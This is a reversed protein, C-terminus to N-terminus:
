AALFRFFIPGYMALIFIYIYTHTHHCYMHSTFCHRHRCIFILLQYCDLLFPFSVLSLSLSFFTSSLSDLRWCIKIELNRHTHITSLYAYCLIIDNGMSNIANGNADFFMTLIRQACVNVSKRVRVWVHIVCHRVVCGHDILWHFTKREVWRKRRAARSSIENQCLKSNKKIVVYWFLPLWVVVLEFAFFYIVSQNCKCTGSAYRKKNNNNNLANGFFFNLDGYM